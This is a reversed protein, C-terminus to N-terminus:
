HTHGHEQMLRNLIGNIHRIHQQKSAHHNSDFVRTDRSKSCGYSINLYYIIRCKCSCHQVARLVAHLLFPSSTCKVCSVDCIWGMQNGRYHARHILVLVCVYICTHMDICLFADGGTALHAGNPKEHFNLHFIEDCTSKQGAAHGMAIEITDLGSFECFMCTFICIRMHETYM